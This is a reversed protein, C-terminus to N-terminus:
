KGGSFGSTGGGWSSRGGSRSGSSGSGKPLVFIFILIVVIILVVKVIDMIEFEGVGAIELKERLTQDLQGGFAERVENTSLKRRTFFEM